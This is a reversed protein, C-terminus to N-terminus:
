RSDLFPVQFYVTSEILNLMLDEEEEVEDERRKKRKGMKRRREKRKRSRKTRKTRKRKKTNLNPVPIDSKQLNTIHCLM